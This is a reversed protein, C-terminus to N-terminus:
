RHLATVAQPVLGQGVDGADDNTRAGHRRTGTVALWQQEARRRVSPDLPDGAVCM